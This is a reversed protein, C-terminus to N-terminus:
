FIKLYERENRYSRSVRGKFPGNKKRLDLLRKGRELAINKNNMPSEKPKLVHFIAYYEFKILSRGLFPSRLRLHPNPIFIIAEPKKSGHIM